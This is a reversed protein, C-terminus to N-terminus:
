ESINVLPCCQQRQLPWVCHNGNVTLTKSDVAIV